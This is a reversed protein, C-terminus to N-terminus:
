ETFLNTVGIERITFIASRNPKYPCKVLVADYRVRLTSKLYLTYTSAYGIANGGAPRKIDIDIDLQSDPITTAHNTVVIAVEYLQCIRRLNSMFRFLKQLKSSRESLGTYETKYHTIPSDVVILKFKKDKSRELDKLIDREVILEQKESNLPQYLTINELALDSDFGRAKAIESVREPRFSGETDIYICKGDVGGKSKDQSVISSLSHCIQTKGSGSDGYFQTVAKTEIGGKLLNDLATSGTSIREISNRSYRHYEAATTKLNIEQKTAKSVLESARNLYCDHNNNKSIGLL